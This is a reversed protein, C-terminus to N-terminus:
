PYEGTKITKELRRLAAKANTLEEHLFARDDISRQNQERIADIQSRNYDSLKEQVGANVIMRAFVAAVLIAAWLEPWRWMGRFVERANALNEM